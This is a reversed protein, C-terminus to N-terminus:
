FYDQELLTFPLRRMDKEEKTSWSAADKEAEIDAEWQTEMKGLVHRTSQVLFWKFKAMKMMGHYMAVSIERKAKNEITM